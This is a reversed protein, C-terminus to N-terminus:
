MKKIAKASYSGYEKKFPPFKRFQEVFNPDLGHSAAFTNLAKQIDQKDEVSYLIHWLAEEIERTLFNTPVTELKNLRALMLARTENCPYQKSEDKAADYAYNWRYNGVRFKLPKLLHNLLAKQDVEKRDNLWEFLNTWDEQTK